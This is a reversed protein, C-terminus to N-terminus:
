VSHTLAHLLGDTTQRYTYAAVIRRANTSLNALEQNTM